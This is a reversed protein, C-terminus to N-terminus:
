AILHNKLTPLERERFAVAIRLQELYQDLTKGGLDIGRSAFFTRVDQELEPTALNTIGGCMRRLGQKPFLRDMQDWNQKVFEWAPERGYVNGLGASVVFPADQTRIEGDITHALTRALLSPSQFAALSFLYRREEQ